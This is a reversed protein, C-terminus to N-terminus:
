NWTEAKGGGHNHRSGEGQLEYIGALVQAGTEADEPYHALVPKSYIWKDGGVCM